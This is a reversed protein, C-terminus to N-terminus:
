SKKTRLSDMYRYLYWTAITRYPMWKSAIQMYIDDPSTKPVNYLLSIASRIARDGIPFVDLRNMSFMLYMEATWRGIGKIETLKNIINENDLDELSDFDLKGSIVYNSLCKLYNIKPLSLGTQRLTDDDIKTLEFPNVCLNTFLSDFRSRISAAAPKSLQQNVISYVLAPFGKERRVLLCPGIQNIVPALKPDIDCLRSVGIELGTTQSM